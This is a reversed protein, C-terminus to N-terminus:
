NLKKDLGDAFILFSARRDQSTTCGFMRKGRDDAQKKATFVIQIKPHKYM